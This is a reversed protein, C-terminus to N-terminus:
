RRSSADDSRSHGSCAQASSPPSLISFLVADPKFASLERMFRDENLQDDFFVDVTHGAQRLVGSICMLGMYEMLVDQCM